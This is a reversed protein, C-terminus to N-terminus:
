GRDHAYRSLVHIGGGDPEYTVFISEARTIPETEVQSNRVCEIVEPALNHHISVHYLKLKGTDTKREFLEVAVQDAPCDLSEALDACLRSSDPYGGNRLTLNRPAAYGSHCRQRRR